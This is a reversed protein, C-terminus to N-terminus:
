YDLLMPLRHDVALRTLELFIALGAKAKPEFRSDAGDPM